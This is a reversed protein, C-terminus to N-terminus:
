FLKRQAVVAQLFGPFLDNIMKECYEHVWWQKKDADWERFRSPITEKLREIIGADYNFSIWYGSEGKSNGGKSWYNLSM